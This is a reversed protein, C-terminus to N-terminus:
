SLPHKVEFNPETPALSSPSEASSVIIGTRGPILVEVGGLESQLLSFLSYSLLVLGGMELVEEVASIVRFSLPKGSAIIADSGTATMINVISDYVKGGIMELGIVGSTYVVASIALLLRIRKKLKWWVPFFLVALLIVAPGYVVIWAFYFVGSLHLTNRLPEMLREHVSFLEDYALFCFLAALGLWTTPRHLIERGSRWVILFLLANTLFLCGSYFSPLNSEKDLDLLRDFFPLLGFVHDHGLGYRLFLIGLHGLILFIGPAALALTITKPDLVLICKRKDM